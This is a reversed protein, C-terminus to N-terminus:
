KLLVRPIEKPSIDRQIVVAVFLAYLVAPLSTEVITM